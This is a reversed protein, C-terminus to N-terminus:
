QWGVNWIVHAIDKATNLTDIVRGFIGSTSTDGEDDYSEDDDYPMFMGSSTLRLPRGEREDESGVFWPRSIGDDHHESKPYWSDNEDYEYDNYVDSNFRLGLNAQRLKDRESTSTHRPGPEPTDARCKLTTPPLPAIIKSEGHSVFCKPNNISCSSDQQRQPLSHDNLNNGSASRSSAIDEEDGEKSDIAICQVVENNFHIHRKECNPSGHSTTTTTTATSTTTTTTTRTSTFIPRDQVLPLGKATLPPLTTAEQSKIIASACRLLTNQSLSHQLITESATKKKLIPKKELGSNSATRRYSSVRSTQHADFPM